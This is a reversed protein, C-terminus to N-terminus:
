GGSRPEPILAARATAQAAIDLGVARSWADLMQRFVSGPSGAGIPQGDCRVVPLVCTSTSTLWVEDASCLEDVTLDREVFPVSESEALERLVAVSVGPLVKALIPSVVGEERRYVVVNATSAEGVHGDQDLLVARANAEAARAERDALYYHMRSRCKLEPPWCTAPTQRHGSVWVGVGDTYEDAWDGFRLPFGHVCRTPQGGVGPTAFAVVAWDDEASAVTAALRLPEHRRVWEKIAADLEDVVAPDIGVIEVSRRLRTVHDPQRWVRGAFTRLRETVTVGLAFGPDAVSISLAQEDIWEGNHYAQREAM